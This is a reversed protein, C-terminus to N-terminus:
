APRQRRRDPNALSFSILCGFVGVIMVGLASVIQTIM